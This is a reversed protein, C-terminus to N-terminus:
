KETALNLHSASDLIILNFLRSCRIPHFYLFLTTDRYSSRHHLEIILAVFNVDEVSWTMLVKSFVCEACKGGYITGDNDNVTCFTYFILCTFQHRNATHALCWYDNVDVLHVTFTAIRKIKKIFKFLFQLDFNARKRPWDILSLSELADIIDIFLFEIKERRVLLVDSFLHLNINVRIFKFLM